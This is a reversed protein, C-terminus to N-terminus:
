DQSDYYSEDFCKVCKNIEDESVDGRLWRQGTPTDWFPSHPPYIHNVRDLLQNLANM